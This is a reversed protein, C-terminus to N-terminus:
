LLFLAESHTFSASCSPEARVLESPCPLAGRCTFISRMTTLSDLCGRGRTYSNTFSATIFRSRTRRPVGTFSRLPALPRSLPARNKHPSVESLLVGRVTAARFLATFSSCALFGSLPQSLRLTSGLHLYCGVECPALELSATSPAYFGVSTLDPGVLDPLRSSSVFETLSQRWSPILRRRLTLTVPPKPFAQFSSREL